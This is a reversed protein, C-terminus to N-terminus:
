RTLRFRRLFFLLVIVAIVGGIMGSNLLTSLAEDIVEGQSFLTVM